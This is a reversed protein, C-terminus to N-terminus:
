EPEDPEGTRDLVIGWTSQFPILRLADDTGVSGAPATTFRWVRGQVIKGDPSVADIRWYYTQGPALTGPDLINSTRNGQYETADRAAAAVKDRDTAFYVDHSVAQYGGLWMLDADRGVGTSGDRPIPTSTGAAQCGPIWYEAAGREYAGVDPAKGIHGDTIRPIERGADILSSGKAPRFDGAAPNALPPPQKRFVAKGPDILEFADAGLNHSLRGNPPEVKKARRLEHPMQGTLVPAYNNCAESNANQRKLLHEWQETAWEKFPEEASWLVLDLMPNDFCTNNYARNRDGKIMIGKENCNWAVNHHIVLNRTLDDGRIGIGGWRFAQHDHVWNYRIVTGDLKVGHCQILGGDCQVLGGHHIYNLECVSPGLSPLIVGESAGVHHVTNRRFVSRASAAMHVAACNGAVGNGLGRWDIDHVLCNEVTNKSGRLFLGPAESYAIRCNRIANRRGDVLTPGLAQLGGLVVRNASRCVGPVYSPSGDMKAIPGVCTPYLLECNEVVCDKVAELLFTTAFFRVGDLHVHSAGRVIFGYERVKGELRRGTPNRGDPPWLYLTKAPRDFFWEGPADLAKLTGYLFYHDFGPWTRKLQTREAEHRRGLDRAYEFCAKGANHNEVPRLFTQWAGVNLVALAGTWDIGTKALEPDVIRGYESGKANAAWTSKDWRRDFPQNPWRAEVMLQGDVFLQSIERSVTAKHIKDKYVSWQAQIGETGSLTVNEGAYAAFRIPKGATGSKTVIVTERYVGGRVYCVDGPQMKDAAAQMTRLPRGLTGPNGNSGDSSVYWEAAGANGAFIGVLSLVAGFVVLVFTRMWPELSIAM